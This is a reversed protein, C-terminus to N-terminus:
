PEDKSETRADGDKPKHIELKDKIQKVLKADPTPQEEALKLANTWAARAEAVDKLKHHCDGLHDWITPDDGNELDTAKKLWKAGEKAEGLKFLVWGLSDLYAPNDPEAAVAKEIMTKAKELNKGQDAYLYGLDNNVGVDDPNEALFKELIEEGKRIKGIQVYIASLSFKAQRALEVNPYKELFAVYREVAEEYRHAHYYIWSQRFELAAKGQANFSGDKIALGISELAKDTEGTLELALARYYWYLPRSAALLPHDIAEQYVGAADAYREAGMLMQTHLQFVAAAQSPNAQVALRFFETATDIQDSRHALVALLLVQSYDDAGAGDKTRMRGLETLEALLEPDGEIAALETELEPVLNALEDGQALMRPLNEIRSLNDLM